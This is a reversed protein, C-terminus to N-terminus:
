LRYEAFEKLWNKQMGKPIAFKTMRDRLRWAIPNAWNAMAGIRWATAQVRDTQLRRAQEFAALAAAVAAGDALDVSGLSQSLEWGDEIAESAGRGLNPTPAHAADGILIVRGETWRPLSKIDRIDQRLISEEPTAEIVAPIPAPFQRYRRVVEAKRGEPGDKTGQPTRVAAFWYMNSGGLHGIGFRDGPGQTFSLGHRVISPDDYAIIARLYQYGAYRPAIDGFLVRRCASTIGDSAVLCRGREERGDDFHVTVGEADQELGVFKRGFEVVGDPLGNWLCRLVNARLVMVPAHAGTQKAMEAVPITALVQGNWSQFVMTELPGGVADVAGAVGLRDLAKMGNIWIQLAGGMLPLEPAQEFAAVPIGARCMALTASLGGIGGGTVMVRDPTAAM